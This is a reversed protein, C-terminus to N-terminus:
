MPHPLYDRDLVLRRAFEYLHLAVAVVDELAVHGLHAVEGGVCATRSRHCPIRALKAKLVIADAHALKVRCWRGEQLLKADVILVGGKGYIMFLSVFEDEGEGLGSKGLSREEVCSWGMAVSAFLNLKVLFSPLPNPM